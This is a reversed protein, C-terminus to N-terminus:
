RVSCSQDFWDIVRVDHDYCNALISPDISDYKKRNGNEDIAIKMSHAGTRKLVTITADSSVTIGQAALQKIAAETPKAHIEPV